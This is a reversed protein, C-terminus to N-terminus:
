KGATKSKHDIVTIFSYNENNEKNISFIQIDSKTHM